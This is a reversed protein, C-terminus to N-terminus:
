ERNRVLDEIITALDLASSKSICAAVGLAEAERILEENLFASFLVVLMDPKEALIQRAVEIGKPGPMQNDLLVVTPVPPPDLQQLKALTDPGDIAEGAVSIGGMELVERALLRMDPDDDVVLITIAARSIREDRSALASIM